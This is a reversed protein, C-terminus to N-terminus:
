QIDLRACIGNLTRLLTALDPSEDQWYDILRLISGVAPKWGDPLLSAIQPERLGRLGVALLHLCSRTCTRIMLWTGQHRVYFGEQCEMIRHLDNELAQRAIQLTHSGLDHFPQSMLARLSPFYVVERIDVLHGRLIGRLIDGAGTTPDQSFFMSPPLTNYWSQLKQTFEEVYSVFQNEEQNKWWTKTFYWSSPSYRISLADNMIRRLAIEALYFFWALELETRSRETTESTDWALPVSIPPSPYVNPYRMENLSSGPLGLETRLEDSLTTSPSPASLLESKLCSWYISEEVYRNHIEFQDGVPPALSTASAHVRGRAALWGLCQTGTQSFSKWAAFIQLTSMLFVSTLFSCQLVLLSSELYVLGIRRQAEIFYANAQDRREKHKSPGACLETEIPASVLSVACVLLILCSRGDWRLGNELFLRVDDWLTVVDFIPNKIHNSSLFNAVLQGVAQSDVEFYHDFSSTGDTGTSQRVQGLLTLLPPYPQSLVPQFVPWALLSEVTMETSAHIVDAAPPNDGQEDGSKADPAVEQRKSRRPSVPFDLTPSRRDACTDTFAATPSLAARPGPWGSNAVRARCVNCATGARRRNYSADARTIPGPSQM